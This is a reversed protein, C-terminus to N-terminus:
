FVLHVYISIRWTVFVIKERYYTFVIIVDVRWCIMGYNVDPQVSPIRLYERFNAVADDEASEERRGPSMALWRQVGVLRSECYVGWNLWSLKGYTKRWLVLNDDDDEDDYRSKTIHRLYFFYVVDMYYGLLQLFSKVKCGVFSYVFCYIQTIHFYMCACFPRFDGVIYTQISSRNSGRWTRICDCDWTVLYLTGHCVAHM